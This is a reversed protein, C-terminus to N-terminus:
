LCGVLNNICTALKSQFTCLRLVEDRAEFRHDSWKDAAKCWDAAAGCAKSSASKSFCLVGAEASLWM